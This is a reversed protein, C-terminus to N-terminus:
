YVKTLALEKGYRKRFGYQNSNILNNEELHNYFRNNLTRELIKGPIELLTIPRFNIAERNDKREKPALVMLGNKYVVTFYGMSLLINIIDNLRELAIRPLRTLIMKIIGTEGPAKNKFKQIIKIMEFYELPKTLSDESNLRNLNALRYPVTRYVNEVM